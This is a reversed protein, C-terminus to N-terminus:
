KMYLIELGVFYMKNQHFSYLGEISLSWGLHGTRLFEIDVTLDAELCFNLSAELLKSFYCRSTSIFSIFIEKSLIKPKHFLLWNLVFYIILSGLLIGGM